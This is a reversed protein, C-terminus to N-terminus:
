IINCIRNIVVIKGKTINTRM